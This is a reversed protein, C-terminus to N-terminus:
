NQLWLTLDGPIPWVAPYDGDTRTVVRLGFDDDLFRTPGFFTRVVTQTPVHWLKLENLGQTVLLRGDYSIGFDYIESGHRFLGLCKKDVLDFLWMETNNQAVGVTPALSGAGVYRGSRSIRLTPPEDSVNTSGLYAEGYCGFPFTDGTDLNVFLRRIPAVEEEGAEAGAQDIKQSIARDVITWYQDNKDFVGSTDYAVGWKSISEYNHMLRGDGDYFRIKHNKAEDDQPDYTEVRLWSRAGLWSLWVDNEDGSAERIRTATLDGALDLRTINGKAHSLFVRRAVPDSVFDRIDDTVPTGDPYSLREVSNAGKRRIRMKWGHGDDFLRLQAPEGDVLARLLFAEGALCGRNIWKVAEPSSEDAWEADDPVGSCPRRMVDLYALDVGWVDPRTMVASGPISHIDPDLDVVETEFVLNSTEPSYRGWSVIARAGDPTLWASRAMWRSDPDRADEYVPKLSYPSWVYFGYDDGFGEGASDGATTTFVAGDASADISVIDYRSGPVLWQSRQDTLDLVELHSDGFSGRHARTTLILKENDLYRLCRALSVADTIDKPCKLNFPSPPADAGMIFADAQFISCTEDDKVTIRHGNPSFAAIDAELANFQEVPKASGGILAILDARLSESDDTPTSNVLLLDNSASFEFSQVERAPLPDLSQAPNKWVILALDSTAGAFRSCSRDGVVHVLPASASLEVKTGDVRLAFANGDHTLVVVDGKSGCPKAEVLPTTGWSESEWSSRPTGTAIDWLTLDNGSLSVAFQHELKGQLGFTGTSRFRNHGYEDQPILNKSSAYPGSWQWMAGEVHKGTRLDFTASQKGTTAEDVQNNSFRIEAVNSGRFQVEIAEETALVRRTRFALKAATRAKEWQSPNFSARADHRALSELATMPGSEAAEIAAQRLGIEEDLGYLQGREVADAVQGAVDLTELNFNTRWVLALYLFALVLAGFIGLPVTWKLNESQDVLWGLFLRGYGDEREDVFPTTSDELLLPVWYKRMFWADDAADPPRKLFYGSHGFRFFRNRFHDGTIGAFGRRGALGSGFPLIANLILVLDRDGCENVLRRIGTRFLTDWPFSGPLVSAALIVTGIRGNLSPGIAQLSRGIIHTGFSHGVLHIEDFTNADIYDRLRAEFKATESRRRFPNLFSFISFYRYDNHRFTVNLREVASAHESIAAANRADVEALVIEELKKQWRANTRIGHSTLILIRRVSIGTGEM